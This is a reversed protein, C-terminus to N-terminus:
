IHGGAGGTLFLEATSFRRGLATRGIPASRRRCGLVPRQSDCHGDLYWARAADSLEGLPVLPLLDTFQHLARAALGLGPLIAGGMFVGEASLYDVTIASGSDVVLAARRPARLQAAATAAALRDMGIHEPHELRVELPLDDATLGSPASHGSPTSGQRVIWDMLHAAAPRNM